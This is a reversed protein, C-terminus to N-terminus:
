DSLFYTVTSVVRIKKIHPTNSDRDEISFQGQYANKIKGLKSGSDTAFKEAVERANRTAEEIMDPKLDNLGKFLFETRTEYNQGTVAIGNKGLEFIQSMSKRVLEINTSYVTITSSGFYRFQDAAADRYEQAQRDMTAPISVSIEEARMGNQNLFNVVQANKKQIASYLASLDNSVENFKIPWIAINAPVERESLGKVTVTRDLARMTILGFSIFYGLGVLGACLLIGVIIASANNKANM